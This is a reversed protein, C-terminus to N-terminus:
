WLPTFRRVQLRCKAGVDMIVGIDGNEKPIFGAIGPRIVGEIARISFMAGVHMAGTNGASCFADVKRSKLLRFGISISSNPKTSFARTPHEGMEVVEDANVIELKPNHIGLKSLTAELESTKGILIIKSDSDLEATAQAAGEINNDPAFDGGM